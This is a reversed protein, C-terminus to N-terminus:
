CWVRVWIQQILQPSRQIQQAICVNLCEGIKHCRYLGTGRLRTSMIWNWTAQCCKSLVGFPSSRKRFGCIYWIYSHRQIRLPPDVFARHTPTFSLPLCLRGDRLEWWRSIYEIVPIRISSTWWFKSTKEPSRIRRCPSAYPFMHALAVCPHVLLRGTRIQLDPRSGLNELPVSLRDM